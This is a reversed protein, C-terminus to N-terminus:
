PDGPWPFGNELHEFVRAVMRVHLFEVAPHLPNVRAYIDRCYIARQVHEAFMVQDLPVTKVISAGPIFRDGLLMMVMEDVDVRAFDNFEHGFFDFGHLFFDRSAADPNPRFRIESLVRTTEPALRFTLRVEDVLYAPPSYDKLYVTRPDHQTM